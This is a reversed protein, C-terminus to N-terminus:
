QPLVRHTGIILVSPFCFVIRQIEIIYFSTQFESISTKMMILEKRTYLKAPPMSAPDRFSLCYINEDITFVVNM